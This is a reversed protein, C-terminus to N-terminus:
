MQHCRLLDSSNSSGLAGAPDNFQKVLKKRKSMGTSGDLTVFPYSRERCLQAVLGLTQTFNSVIVIRDRTTERLAQLMRALLAFKGGLMEWGPSMRGRGPRGDDFMGTHTCVHLDILVGKSVM